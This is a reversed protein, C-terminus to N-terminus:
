SSSKSPERSIAEKSDCGPRAQSLGAHWSSVKFSVTSAGKLLAPTKEEELAAKTEVLLPQSVQSNEGPCGAGASDGSWRLQFVSVCQFLRCLTQGGEVLCVAVLFLSLPATVFRCVDVPPPSEVHKWPSVEPWAQM